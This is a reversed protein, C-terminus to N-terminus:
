VNPPRSDSGSVVTIDILIWMIGVPGLNYQLFLENLFFIRILRVNVVMAIVLDYFSFKHICTCACTRIQM